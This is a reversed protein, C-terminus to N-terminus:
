IYIYIYKNHIGVLPCNACTWQQTSTQYYGHPCPKPATSGTPCMHGKPCKYIPNSSANMKLPCYFGQQCDTTPSSLGTTACYQGMTCHVCDNVSEAGEDPNYTGEPCLTPTYSGEPCYRGSGCIQQTSTLAGQPCYYGPQCLGSPVSLLDEGCWYGQTCPTAAASGAPCFQSAACKYSQPARTSTGTGCYYGGDCKVNLVAIGPTECAYGGTCSSCQAEASLGETPSWKGIPCPKVVNSGPCYHGKKCLKVQNNYCYSGIPCNTCTLQTSLPQVQHFDCKKPYASGTPCEYGPQCEKGSPSQSVSGEECYYGGTCLLSPNVIGTGPCAYGATCQLCNEPKTGGQMPNYTGAPCDTYTSSGGVCYAGTPCINGGETGLNTPRNTTSELVCYYGEECYGAWLAAGAVPCYRGPPCSIKDVSGEPCYFGIPCQFTKM